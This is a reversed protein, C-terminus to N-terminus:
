IYEIGILNNSYRSSTIRFLTNDDLDNSFHKELMIAGSLIIMVLIM